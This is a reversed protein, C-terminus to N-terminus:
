AWLSVWIAFAALEAVMAIVMATAVNGKREVAKANDDFHQGAFGIANKKFGPDTRWLSKRYLVMPDVVTLKGTNRGWVGLTLGVGAAILGLAFSGSAFTVAPNIAKAFVPVATTMTLLTTTLSNLRTDAAEFRGAMIQYSPVVFQFAADVAPYEPQDSEGM